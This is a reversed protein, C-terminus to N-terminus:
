SPEIRRGVHDNKLSYQEDLHFELAGKTLRTGVRGTNHIQFWLKFYTWPMGNYVFDRHTARVDRIALRPRNYYFVYIATALTGIAGATGIIGLILEINLEM